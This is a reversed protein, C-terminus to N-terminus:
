QPSQTLKAIYSDIDRARDVLEAHVEPATLVLFRGDDVADVVLEGVIEADVVPYDPSRPKTPEGFHTIQEAINTTVGSPCLCTVGIGKPNLYFALSESMGVVAHKSAVYPLRDYGHALLGSASATYVVHGRGQEILIPLFVLNSRVMGLLNIDVVRQWEELPLSEPPGMAIVGVNNMVVDVQGFHQVTLDRLREVDVVQSVDCAVAAATGGVGKIEDTVADARDARVDSVVVRAGRRSFSLAVARGIGSGAGTVIAV